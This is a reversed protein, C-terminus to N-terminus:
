LLSFAILIVTFLNQQKIQPETLIQNEQQTLELHPHMPVEMFSQINYLSRTNTFVDM